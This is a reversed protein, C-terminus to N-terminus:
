WPIITGDHNRFTGSLEKPEIDELAKLMDEVSTDVSIAGLAKLDM